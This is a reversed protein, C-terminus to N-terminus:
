KEMLKKKTDIIYALEHGDKFEKINALKNSIELSIKGIEIIGTTLVGAPMGGMYAAAIGAVASTQLTKSDLLSSLTTTLLEFGHKNCVALYDDIRKNLDDEIYAKSKATYTESLFLRLNRLKRRSQLDLRLEIIQNWTALSTNILQIDVLSQSLNPKISKLSPMDTIIVSAYNFGLSKSFDHVRSRFTVGKEDTQNELYLKTAYKNYSDRIYEAHLKVVVDVSDKSNLKRDFLMLKKEEFVDGTLPHIINRIPQNADLYKGLYEWQVKEYNKINNPSIDYLLNVLAKGPIYSESSIFLTDGNEDFHAPSLAVPLVRDFYLAAQKVDGICVAHKLKQYSM